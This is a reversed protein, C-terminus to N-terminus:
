GASIFLRHLKVMFEDTLMVFERRGDTKDKIRFLIGQDEMKRLYRLATSVPVNSALCAAKISVLKSQLHNYALDLILDWAPESFLDDSGLIFNRRCRLEYTQKLWAPFNADTRYEPKGPIAQQSQQERNHAVLLNKLKSSIQNSLECLRLLEDVSVEQEGASAGFLLGTEPDAISTGGM